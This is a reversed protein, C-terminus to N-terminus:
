KVYFIVTERGIKGAVDSVEITVVHFNNKLLPQTM